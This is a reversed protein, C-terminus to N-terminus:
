HVPRDKMLDRLRIHATSKKVGEYEEVSVLPIFVIGPRFGGVVILNKGYLYFADIEDIDADAISNQTIFQQMEAYTDFTYDDEGIYLDFEEGTGFDDEAMEVLLYANDLNQVSTGMLISLCRGRKFFYDMYFKGFDSIGEYAYEYFAATDNSSSTNLEGPSAKTVHDESKNILTSIEALGFPLQKVKDDKSCSVFVVAAFLIFPLLKKM